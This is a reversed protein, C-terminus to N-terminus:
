RFKLGHLLEDLATGDDLCAAEPCIFAVMVTTPSGPRLLTFMHSAVRVGGQELGYTVQFSEAGADFLHPHAQIETRPVGKLARRDVRKMVKELTTRASEGVTPVTAVGIFSGTSSTAAVDFTINPGSPDTPFEIREWSDPFTISYAGSPASFAWGGLVLFMGLILVCLNWAAHAGMTYFLSRKQRQWALGFGMLLIAPILLAGHALTFLLATVIIALWRNRRALKEYLLGRYYIEEIIPAGVVVVVAALVLGLGSTSGVLLRLLQDVELEGGSLLFSVPFFVALLLLGFGAGALLERRLNGDWSIGLTSWDGGQEKRVLHVAVLVACVYGVIQLFLAQDLFESVRMESRLALFGALM